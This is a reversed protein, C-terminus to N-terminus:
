RSLTPTQGPREPEAGRGPALPSGSRHFLDAGKMRQALQQALWFIMSVFGVPQVGSNM